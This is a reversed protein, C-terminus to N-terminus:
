ETVPVVTVPCRARRVVEVAVSATWPESRLRGRHGVVLAEAGEAQEILVDAPRGAVSVVEIDPVVQDGPLAELADDVMVRAGAREAAETERRGPVPLLAAWPGSALAGWFLGAPDYAAVARVALGHEAGQRVAERLARRGATSGTLGCVLYGPGDHAAAGARPGPDRLRGRVDTV